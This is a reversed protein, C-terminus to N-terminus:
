EKKLGGKLKEVNIKTYCRPCTVYYKSDGKYNWEHKCKPCKIKM